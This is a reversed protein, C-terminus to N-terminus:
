QVKNKLWHLFKTFTSQKKPKESFEPCNIHGSASLFDRQTYCLVRTYKGDVPSPPFPSYKSNTCWEMTSGEFYYSCDKCLKIETTM